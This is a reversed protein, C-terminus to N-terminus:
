YAVYIHMAQGLWVSSQSRTFIEGRVPHKKEVQYNEPKLKGAFEYYHVLDVSKGGIGFQKFAAKLDRGYPMANRAGPMLLACLNRYRVKGSFSAIVIKAPTGDITGSWQRSSDVNKFRYNKSIARSFEMAPIDVNVNEDETWDASHELVAIRDRPDISKVLCINEFTGVASPFETGDKAQLPVSVSGLLVALAWIGNMRM